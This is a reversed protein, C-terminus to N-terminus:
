FPVGRDTVVVYRTGMGGYIYRKVYWGGVKRAKRQARVKDKFSGHFEYYMGESARRRAPKKGARRKTATKKTAM